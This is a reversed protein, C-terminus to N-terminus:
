KALKNKAKYLRFLIIITCLYGTGPMGGTDDCPIYLTSWDLIPTRLVAVRGACGRGSGGHSKWGTHGERSLKIKKVYYIFISKLKVESNLM